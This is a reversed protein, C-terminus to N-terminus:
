RTIKLIADIFAQADDKTAFLLRTDLLNVLAYDNKRFILREVMKWHLVAWFVEQWEEAERLPANLEQGNIVVKRPKRRFEFESAFGPQQICSLWCSSGERPRLEWNKWAEVDKEAEAWYKQAAKANVHGQKM